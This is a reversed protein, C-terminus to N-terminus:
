EGRGEILKAMFASRSATSPTPAVLACAMRSARGNAVTASRSATEPMPSVSMESNDSWSSVSKRRCLIPNMKWANLRILSSLMTSM